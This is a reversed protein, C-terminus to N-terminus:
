INEKSTEPTSEEAVQLAEALSLNYQAAFAKLLRNFKEDNLKNRSRFCLRRFKRLEVSDREKAVKFNLFCALATERNEEGEKFTMGLVALKLAEECIASRNIHFDVANQAIKADVYITITAKM